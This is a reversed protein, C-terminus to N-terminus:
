AKKYSLCSTVLLVAATAEKKIWESWSESLDDRYLQFFCVAEVSDPKLQHIVDLDLRNLVNIGNFLFDFIAHRLLIWSLVHCFQGHVKARSWKAYSVFIEEGKAINRTAIMIFHCCWSSWLDDQFVPNSVFKITWWPPDMLSWTAWTHLITLWGHIQWSPTDQRYEGAKCRSVICVKFIIALYSASTEQESIGLTEIGFWYAPMIM